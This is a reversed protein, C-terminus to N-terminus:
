RRRLMAVGGLGLLALSTPEPLVVVDFPAGLPSASSVSGPLFLSFDVAITTSGEGTLTEGAVFTNSGSSTPDFELTLADGNPAPNDELFFLTTPLVGSISGTVAMTGFAFSADISGGSDMFQGAVRDRVRFNDEIAVSSGSLSVNTQGATPGPTFTFLLTAHAQQPIVLAILVLLLTTLRM